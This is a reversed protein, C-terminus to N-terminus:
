KSLKRLKALAKDIAKLTPDPLDPGGTNLYAIRNRADGLVMVADELANLHEALNWTDVMHGNHFVTGDDAVWWKKVTTETTM